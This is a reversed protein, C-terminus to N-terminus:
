NADVLDNIKKIFDDYSVHILDTIIYNKLIFDLITKINKISFKNEKINKFTFYISLSKKINLIDCYNINYIDFNVIILKLNNIDKENKHNETIDIESTIINFYVHILDNDILNINIENSSHFLYNQIETINNGKKNLTMDNNIFKIQRLNYKEDNKENILVIGKELNNDDIFKNIKLLSSNVQFKKNYIYKHM